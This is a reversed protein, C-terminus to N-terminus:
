MTLTRIVPFFRPASASSRSSSRQPSSQVTTSIGLINRTGVSGDHNVYGEFTYGELPPLPDPVTTALALKDLPPAAPLSMVGEHVWSGKAIPVEAYGIVVGYRLIPEGAAIGCLAVKHAEPIADVLALGNDLQAGASLGGEKAIIALNDRPHVQICLPRLRDNSSM